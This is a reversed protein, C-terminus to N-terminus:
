EKKHAIGQAKIRNVSGKFPFIATWILYDVIVLINNDYYIPDMTGTVMVLLIVGDGLRGIM